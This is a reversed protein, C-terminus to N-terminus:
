VTGVEGADRDAMHVPGIRLWVFGAGHRQGPQADHDFPIKEADFGRIVPHVRIDLQGGVTAAQAGEARQDVCTKAVADKDAMVDAGTRTGAMPTPMAVAMDQAVDHGQHPAHAKRGPIDGMQDTKIGQAQKRHRLSGGM